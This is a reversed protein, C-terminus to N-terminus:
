IQKNSFYISRIEQVADLIAGMLIMLSTIGFNKLSQVGFFSEALNPLLILIGLILGGM